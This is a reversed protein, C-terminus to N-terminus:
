PQGWQQAPKTQSVDSKRAWITTFGYENTSFVQTGDPLTSFPKSDKSMSNVLNQYQARDDSTIVVIAEPEVGLARSAEHVPATPESGWDGWEDRPPMESWVFDVPTAPVEQEIAERIIRRLQRKTIRM